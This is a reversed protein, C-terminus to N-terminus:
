KRFFYRRMVLFVINLAVIVLGYFMINLSIAGFITSMKGTLIQFLSLGVIPILFSMSSRIGLHSKKFFYMLISSAIIVVLGENLNPVCGTLGSDCSQSVIIQAPQNDM